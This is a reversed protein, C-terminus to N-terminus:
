MTVIHPTFRCTDDTTIIGGERISIGANVDGVVWSSIVPYVGDFIPLQTYTQYIYEMNINELTKSNFFKEENSVFINKGGQSYLPKKVYSTSKLDNIDLTCELLNPHGKFMDWMVALFAKNSSVMRWIPELWNMEQYRALTSLGFESEILQNWPLLKYISTIIDDNGDLFYSDDSGIDQLLVTEINIGAADATDSLYLINAIDELNDACAFHVYKGKLQNFIHDWREVLLQHISNFQPNAPFMDDRWYTQILSAELLNLTSDGRVSLLKPPNIGDFALDYRGYIAPDGNRWSQIITPIAERPIDFKHILNGNIIHDLTQFVMTNITSTALQIQTIENQSFEYYVGENWYGQAYTMGQTLVISEWDPREEILHRKM